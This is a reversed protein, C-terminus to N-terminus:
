RKGSTGLACKSFSSEQRHFSSMLPPKTFRLVGRSTRQQLFIVALEKVARTIELSLVYGLGTEHVQVVTLGAVFQSNRSHSLLNGVRNPDMLICTGDRARSLPNLIWRQWSSHHLNCICSLDPAAATTYVLLPLESEVGLRPVEM